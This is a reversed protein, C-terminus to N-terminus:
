PTTATDPRRKRSSGFTFIQEHAAFPEREGRHRSLGVTFGYEDGPLLEFVVEEFGGDTFHHRMQELHEVRREDDARRFFTWVVHGGPRLLQRLFAVLRARDRNDIHGLVGSIVVLDVPPLGAYADSSSADATVVELDPLAERAWSRAREANDPDLEVLRGRVDARRPHDELAGILERGQGGCISVVTVPGAPSAGVVAAVNTRVAHMRGALESEPDDYEDHWNNWNSTDL